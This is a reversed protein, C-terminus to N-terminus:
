GKYNKRINMFPVTNTCLDRSQTLSHFGDLSHVKEKTPTVFIISVSCLKSPTYQSLQFKSFIKSCIIYLIKTLVLLM